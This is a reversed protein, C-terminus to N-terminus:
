IGFDICMHVLISLQDIVEHYNKNDESYSCWKEDVMKWLMVGCDKAKANSAHVCYMDDESRMLLNITYGRLDEDQRYIIELEEPIDSVPVPKFGIMM